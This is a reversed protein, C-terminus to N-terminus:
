YGRNAENWESLMDGWDGDPPIERRLSKVDVAWLDACIKEAEEGADEDLAITVECGAFAPAWESKWSGKGPLGVSTAGSMVRIALADLAGECIYVDEKSQLELFGSFGFPSATNKGRGFVYKRGQWKEINEVTRRQIAVTEFNDNDWPIVLRHDSFTFGGGGDVKSIGCALWRDKGMIQRISQALDKQDAYSKPLAAWNGPIEDARFGRGELYELVDGSVPCVEALREAVLRIAETDVVPFNVTKRAPPAAPLVSVKGVLREAEDLVIKFDNRVDLGHAEAIYSLADGKWGCSFCHLWLQDMWRISMSNRKKEGCGATPHGSMWQGNTGSYEHIGLIDPSTIRSRLEAARDERRPNLKGAM